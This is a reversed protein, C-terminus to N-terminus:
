LVARNSRWRLFLFVLLSLGFVVLWGRRSQSPERPPALAVLSSEWMTTGDSGLATVRLMHLWKPELGKIRAVVDDGAETIEPPALTRWSTQLEGAADLSLFREEIRYKVAAIKPRAWRLEWRSGDLRQAHIAVLMGKPFQRPFSPPAVAGTAAPESPIMRSVPATTPTVAPLAQPPNLPPPTGNSSVTPAVPAAEAELSLWAKFGPGVLAVEEELPVARHLLVVISIQKKEHPGLAVEPIPQINPGAEMKLRLARETQNTLSVFGLRPDSEAKPANIQLHDPEIRVPSTAAGVLQVSTQTGDVGTLTIQGVFKRGEDPRFSVEVQESRGSKVGYDTVSLQWPASVTLRGEVVGGGENTIALSRSESEGAMIQGFELRGPIVMRAPPEEVTIRVEAPSSVGDGSAQVVYRFGDSTVSPAGDNEYIITARNDGLLRLESLTGHEPRQVIRFTVTGGGGYHARLPITTQGGRWVNATQADAQPPAQTPLTIDAQLRAVLVVLAVQVSIQKKM